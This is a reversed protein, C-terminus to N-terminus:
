RRFFDKTLTIVKKIESESLDVYIPLRILQDGFKEANELTIIQKYHQQIFPSRHLPEYHFLALVGNKRMFSLFKDRSSKDPSILYFIHYNITQKESIKPRFFGKTEIFALQTYYTEWIQKRKQQIHHIDDLQARLFAATIESPYFNSGHDVWSYKDVKGERFAKRNTGKEWIINAREWYQKNNVILLGGQGSSINKTEHFSIIGFDGISGLPKNNYKSTIAHSADEIVLLNYKQALQMIKDMDCAMGAYHVVLIAKTKSNILPEIKDPDINPHNSLSDCFKLNVGRLAFPTASAVFTYSPLILEDDQNFQVLLATMELAATASNTLLCKDFGYNSAFFSHCEKTLKGNGSLQGNAYACELYHTEKGTLYPQNFPILHIIISIM